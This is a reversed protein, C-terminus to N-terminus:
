KKKMALLRLAITPALRGALAFDFRKWVLTKSAGGIILRGNAGLWVCCPGCVGFLPAQPVVGDGGRLIM